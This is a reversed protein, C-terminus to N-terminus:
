KPLLALCNTDDMAAVARDAMGEILALHRENTVEIQGAAVIPYIFCYATTRRYDTALDVPDYTIGQDALAGLYREILADGAARRHETSLSQSMFYGVDYGARGRFCIQWDVVTLAPQDPTTGFFLNDLRFDGHCLTTPTVTGQEMFWPLLEAFRDGFEVYRAPLRSGIVKVAEPWAQKFMAALVQPYPPDAYSRVWPMEAFDHDWWRSHLAAMADIATEADAIECGVTQDAVRCGGLDELLLAFDGSEADFAAFYARPTAVPTEAAAQGYFAIENAYFSLPGAVNMRAAEDLTPFKAIVSTPVGDGELTLRYLRGLLGVGVGIQEISFGTVTGDLQETLWAASLDEPQHPFRTDAM